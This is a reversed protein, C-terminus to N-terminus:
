VEKNNEKGPVDLQEQVYSGYKYVAAGIINAVMGWFCVIVMQTIISRLAMTIVFLVCWMIWASPSKFFEKLQKLFPIISLTAFIVFLGSITAEASMDVWIPMQTITAILPVVVDICIAVTKIIKGKTVNKMVFVEATKLNEPM